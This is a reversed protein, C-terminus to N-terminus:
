RFMFAMGFSLRNISEKHKWEYNQWGLNQMVKTKIIQHRYAMTFLLDVKESLPIKVGIEPNLLLGGYNRFYADTVYYPEYEFSMNSYHKKRFNGFAYGMKLAFFPSVDNDQGNYRIDAFLPFLYHEFMEFGVGIGKAWNENFTGNTM